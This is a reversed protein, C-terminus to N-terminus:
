QVTKYGYYFECYENKHSTANEGWYQAQAEVCKFSDKIQMNTACHKEYLRDDCLKGIGSKQLTNYQGDCEKEQKWKRHGTIFIAIRVM